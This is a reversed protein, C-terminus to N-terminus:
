LRISFGSLKKLTQASCLDCLLEVGLAESIQRFDEGINMSKWVRGNKDMPVVKADNIASVIRDYSIKNEGSLSIKSEILNLLCVVLFAFTFFGRIRKTNWAVNQRAEVVGRINRVYDELRACLRCVDIIDSNIMRCGSSRICRYGDFQKDSENDESQTHYKTIETAFPLSRASLSLRDNREKKFRKQSYTYIYKEELLVDQMNYRIEESRTRVKYKFDSNLTVYNESALMDNQVSRPLTKIRNYTIYGHGKERIRILDNYEPAFRNSVFISTMGNNKDLYEDTIGSTGVSVEGSYVIGEKGVHMYCIAPTESYKISGSQSSECEFVCPFVHVFDVASRKRINIKKDIFLTLKDRIADFIDLMKMANGFESIDNEIFCKERNWVDKQPGLESFAEACFAFAAREIDAGGGMMKSCYYRFFYPLNLEDWVKKLLMHGIHYEKAYSVDTYTVDNLVASIEADGNERKEKQELAIKDLLEELYADINEHEKKLESLLGLKMLTRSKPSSQGSVRYSEVIYVRFDNGSKVYKVTM